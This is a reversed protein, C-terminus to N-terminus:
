GLFCDKCVFCVVFSAISFELHLVCVAMGENIHSTVSYCPHLLCVPTISLGEWASLLLLLLLSVPLVHLLLCLSTQLLCNLLAMIPIIYVCVVDKISWINTIYFKMCQGVTTTLYCTFTQMLFYLSSSCLITTLSLNYIHLHM